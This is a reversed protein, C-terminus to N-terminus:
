WMVLLISLAILHVRWEYIAPFASYIAQVGASVSV